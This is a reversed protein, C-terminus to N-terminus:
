PLRCEGDRSEGTFREPPDDLNIIESESAARMIELSHTCLIVQLDRERALRRLHHVVTRQLTPHLSIEPEDIAIICGPRLHRALEGFLLLVQQEGSPLQDLRVMHDPNGPDETAWGATVYVRGERIRIKRQEGLLAQVEAVFKSLHEGNGDDRSKGQELDLYNQWVWHQELSGSWEPPASVRVVWQPQQEPPQLPGGQSVGLRRDHTFVLLGGHLERQRLWMRAVEGVLVVLGSLQRQCEEEGSSASLLRAGDPGPQSDLQWKLHEADATLRLERALHPPIRGRLDGEDLWLGCRCRGSVAFEQLIGPLAQRNGSVALEQLISISPPVQRDGYALYRLLGEIAELVTTKGTGNTGVIVTMPRPEDTLPDVFSIVREGRFCRFDNFILERLKM